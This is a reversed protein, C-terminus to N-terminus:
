ASSWRSMGAPNLKAGRAVEDGEVDLVQDDHGVMPVCWCPQARSGQSAGEVDENLVRSPMSHGLQAHPEGSRSVSVALQVHIPGM